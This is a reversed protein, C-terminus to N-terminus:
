ILTKLKSVLLIFCSSLLSQSDLCFIVIIYFLCRPKDTGLLNIDLPQRVPTHNLSSLDCLKLNKFICIMYKYFWEGSSPNSSNTCFVEWRLIKSKPWRCWNYQCIFNYRFLSSSIRPGLRSDSLLYLDIRLLYKVM